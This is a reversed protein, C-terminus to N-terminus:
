GGGVQDYFGQSFGHRDRFEMASFMPNRPGTEMAYLNCIHRPYGPNLWCEIPKHLAEAFLALGMVVRLAPSGQKMLVAM